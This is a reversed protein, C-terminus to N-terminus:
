LLTSVMDVVLKLYVLVENLLYFVGHQQQVQIQYSSVKKPRGSKGNVNGGRNEKFFSDKGFTDYIMTWRKIYEFSKPHQFPLRNSEFIEKVPVGTKRLEVAKIKFM